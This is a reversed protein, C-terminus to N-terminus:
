SNKDREPKLGPNDGEHTYAYTEHPSNEVENRQRVRQWKRANDWTKEEENMLHYKIEGGDDGEVEGM